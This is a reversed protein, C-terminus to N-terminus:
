ALLTLKLPSAAEGFQISFTVPVVIFMAPLSVPLVASTVAAPCPKPRAVAIANASSPAVTHAVSIFSAVSAVRTSPRGPIRARRNSTHSQFATSIAALSIPVISTEEIASAENM